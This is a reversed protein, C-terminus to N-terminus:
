SLGTPTGSGLPSADKHPLKTVPRGGPVAGASASATDRAWPRVQCLCEPRPLGGARQPTRSPFRRYSSGGWAALGARSSRRPAPASACHSHAAAAPRPAPQGADACCRQARSAPDPGTSKVAVSRKRPPWCRPLREVLTTLAQTVLRRWTGRPKRPSASPGSWTVCSALPRAPVRVWATRSRAPSRCCPGRTLFTRRGRPRLPSNAGHELPDESEM